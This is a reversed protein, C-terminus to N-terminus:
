GIMQRSNSVNFDRESNLFHICDAIFYLLSDFSFCNIKCSM